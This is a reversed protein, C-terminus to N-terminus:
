RRGFHFSSIAAWLGFFQGIAVVALVILLWVLIGKFPEALVKDPAARLLAALVGCAIVILFLALLSM